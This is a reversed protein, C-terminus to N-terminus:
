KATEKKALTPLSGQRQQDRVFALGAMYDMYGLMTQQPMSFFEDLLGPDTIVESIKTVSSVQGSKYEEQVRALNFAGTKRHDSFRIEVPEKGPERVQQALQKYTKPELDIELETGDKEKLRLLIEGSGSKEEMNLEAGREAYDILPDDFRSSRGVALAEAGALQQPPKGPEQRWMTKGDCAIIGVVLGDELLHMRLKSPRKRFIVFERKNSGAEVVGRMAYSAARETPVGYNAKVYAEVVTAIAVKKADVAGAAPDAHMEGVFVAVRSQLEDDSMVGSLLSESAGRNREKLRAIIQDALKSREEGSGAAQPFRLLVDVVREKPTGSKAPVQGSGSYEPHDRLFVNVRSRLEDEDMRGLKLTEAATPSTAKLRNLFEVSAQEALAKDHGPLREQLMATLQQQQVPVVSGQDVLLRPEAKSLAPLVSLIALFVLATGAVYKGGTWRPTAREASPVPVEQTECPTRSLMQFSYQAAKM